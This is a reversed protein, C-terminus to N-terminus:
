EELRIASSLILLQAITSYSFKARSKSRASSNFNIRNSKSVLVSNSEVDRGAFIQSLADQIDDNMGQPKIRLVCVLDKEEGKM